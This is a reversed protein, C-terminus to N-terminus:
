FIVISKSLNKKNEKNIEVTRRKECLFKHIALLRNEMDRIMMFDGEQLDVPLLSKEHNIMKGKLPQGNQILKKFEDEIYVDHAEGLAQEIPIIYPQKWLLDGVSKEKALIGAEISDKLFFNGIRTRNLKQLTGGTGLVLGIDHALSRIYTGRSCSVMVTLLDDDLSIFQISSINITREKINVEGGARAIKYLPKGKFKIASYMPPMQKQKGIFGGLVDKVKKENIKEVKRTELVRGSIDRTDTRIGLKIVTFYEKDLTLFYNSLKTARNIM